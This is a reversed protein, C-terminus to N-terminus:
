RAKMLGMAQRIEEPRAVRGQARWAVHGGPDLLVTVPVAGVEGFGSAEDVKGPDLWAVPFALSLSKAYLEVLERESGLAVVAYNVRDGDHKAMAALFDVQAQAPLSDTTVFAIVTPKGRTAEASVPRLDLSEFAFDVAPDSALTSAGPPASDGGARSAACSGGAACVFALRVTVRASNTAKKVSSSIKGSPSSFM